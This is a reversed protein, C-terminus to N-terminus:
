TSDQGLADGLGFAPPDVSEVSVQVCPLLLAPRLWRSRILVPSPPVPEVSALSVDLCPPLLPPGRAGSALRDNGRLISAAEPIIRTLSAQFRRHGAELGEGGGRRKHGAPVEVQARLRRGPWGPGGGSASVIRADTVNGREDVLVSLDVSGEVRQRLAVPPYALPPKKELVPGIVGPDDLGVLTGARVPGPPRSRLRCGHGASPHDPVGPRCAAARRRGARRRREQAERETAAAKRCPPARRGPPGGGAEAGRGSLEERQRREEDQRARQRAEEQAQEVAAQDVERGKAKAQAEVKVKAEDAAKTEAAQKEAELAALKQELEKVREQAAIVEPSLTTPVPLTTAPVAPAGSRGQLLYGGGAAVLAVVGLAVPHWPRKKTFTFGSAAERLSLRRAAMPLTPLLPRTTSSRPHMSRVRTPSGAAARRRLRSRPLSSWCDRTSPSRRPARCPRRCPGRPRPAERVKRPWTSRMARRRRWPSREPKAKWTRASSRTCSSPSTSPPPRSTAPSSCPTSAGSTRSRPTGLRTPAWPSGLIQAITRARITTAMPNQLRAAGLLTAPDAGAAPPQGTLTEFLIAGLSFIDAKADGPGSTQEPALYRRESELLLGAQAVRSPWYGFGRVRIEGEFSVLVCDPTLLGHFVRAGADTRRSHAYELAGCVKSAILLAHDVAFPYSELRCRELIQQLSRGEVFEYTVYYSSEVKGIGYVKAINPHQLQAALKVQDM